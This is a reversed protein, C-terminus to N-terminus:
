LHKKIDGMKDGIDLAEEEMGASLFAKQTIIFAQNAQQYM